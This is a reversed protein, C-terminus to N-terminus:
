QTSVKKENTNLPSIDSIRKKTPSSDMSDTDFSVVNHNDIIAISESSNSKNSSTTPNIRDDIKEIRNRILRLEDLCSQQFKKSDELENKLEKMQQELKAVAKNSERSQHAINTCFQNFTWNGLLSMDSIEENSFLIPNATYNDMKFGIIIQKQWEDFEIKSLCATKM